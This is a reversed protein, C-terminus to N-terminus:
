FDQFLTEWHGVTWADVSEIRVRMRACTTTRAGDYIAANVLHVFRAPMELGQEVFEARELDLWDAFAGLLIDASEHSHRSGATEKPNRLAEAQLRLWEQASGAQGAIVRGGVVLLIDAWRGEAGEESLHDLLQVLGLLMRDSNGPDFETPTAEPEHNQDDSM